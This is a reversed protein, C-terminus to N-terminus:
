RKDRRPRGSPGAPPAPPEAPAQTGSWDSQPFNDYPGPTSGNDTQDGPSPTPDDYAGPGPPPPTVGALGHNLYDGLSGAQDALGSFKGGLLSADFDGQSATDGRHKQFYDSVGGPTQLATASDKAAIAKDLADQYGPLGTFDQQFNQQDGAILSDAAGKAGAIQGGIDSNIGAVENAITGQNADLFDGVSNFGTGQGPAM